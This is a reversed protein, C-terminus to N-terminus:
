SMQEKGPNERTIECYVAVLLDSLFPDSKGLEAFEKQAEVLQEGTVAGRHKELMTFTTTFCKRIRTVYEDAM